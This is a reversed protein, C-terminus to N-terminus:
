QPPPEMSMCSYRSYEIQKHDLQCSAAWLADNSRRTEYAMKMKRMFQTHRERCSPSLVQASRFEPRRDDAAGEDGEAKRGAAAGAMTEHTILDFDDVVAHGGDFAGCALGQLAGVVRVFQGLALEEILDHQGVIGHFEGGVRRGQRGLGLLAQGLEGLTQLALVLVDIQFDLAVGVRGARGLM